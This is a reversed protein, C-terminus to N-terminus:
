GKNKWFAKMEIQIIKKGISVTHAIRTMGKHLILNHTRATEVVKVVWIKLSRKIKLAVKIRFCSRPM